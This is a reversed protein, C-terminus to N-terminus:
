FTGVISVTENNFERPIFLELFLSDNQRLMSDVCIIPGHKSMSVPAMNIKEETLNRFIHLGLVPQGM